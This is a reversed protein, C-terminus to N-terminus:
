YFMLLFDISVLFFCFGPKTYSKHVFARQYIEINNIKYDNINLKNMIDIIVETTIYKNKVNYPNESFKKDM